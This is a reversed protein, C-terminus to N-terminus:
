NLDALSIQRPVPPNEYNDILMARYIGLNEEGLYLNVWDTATQATLSAAAVFSSAGPDAEELGVAVPHARLTAGGNIEPDYMELTAYINVLYDNSDIDASDFKFRFSYTM